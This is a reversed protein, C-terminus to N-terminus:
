PPSLFAGFYLARFEGMQPDSPDPGPNEFALHFEVLDDFTQWDFHVLKPRQAHDTSLGQTPMGLIVVCLTIAALLLSGMAFHKM